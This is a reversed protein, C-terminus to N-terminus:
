APVFACLPLPVFPCLCLTKKKEKQAETGAIDMAYVLMCLCVCSFVTIFPAAQNQISSYFEAKDKKDNVARQGEPSHM